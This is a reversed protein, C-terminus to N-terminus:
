CPGYRTVARWKKAALGGALYSADPTKGVREFYDVLDVLLEVIKASFEFDSEEIMSQCFLAMTNVNREKGEWRSLRGFENIKGEVAIMDSCTPQPLRELALDVEATLDTLVRKLRGPKVDGIILDPIARIMALEAMKRMTPTMM